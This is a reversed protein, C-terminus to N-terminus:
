KFLLPYFRERLFPLLAHIQDGPCETSPKFDKHGYLERPHCRFASILWELLDALAAICSLSLPDRDNRYDGVICIGISGSNKGEVHAGTVSVPRGEYVAADPGILFHYGIDDFRRTDMHFSQIDLITRAGRYESATPEASHHLVIRAPIHSLLPRSPPRAGWRHRSIFALATV